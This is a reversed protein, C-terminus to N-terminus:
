SRKLFIILRELVLNRIRLVWTSLIELPEENYNEDDASYFLSLNKHLKQCILGIMLILLLLNHIASEAFVLLRKFNDIKMMCFATM